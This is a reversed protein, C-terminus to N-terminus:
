AGTIRALWPEGRDFAILRRGAAYALAESAMDVSEPGHEREDLMPRIDYTRDASPGIRVGETEIDSIVARDAIALASHALDAATIPTIRTPPMHGGQTATGTPHPM